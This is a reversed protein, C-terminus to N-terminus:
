QVLAYNIEPYGRPTGLSIFQLKYINGGADKIVYFRDTRVVPDSDPGGGVRWKSGIVDVDGSFTIEAINAATFEDYSLVTTMVEAAEVGGRANIMVLDSYPYPITGIYYLSRGWVIDWKIKAPEASVISNAAFSVYVFSQKSDKPVDISQVTSKNIEAYQITYTEADKQTVKVKYLPTKSEGLNVVYTKGVKIVTKSLDGAWDDVLSAAAPTTNLTLSAAFDASDSANVIADISIDTEIATSATTNNLIVAFENGCYLGLNWSKRAISTQENNSFDVYVSNAAMPGGEGGNLTLQGGTSIISGFTVTLATNTGLVIEDSLSLITLTLTEDGDFLAEDKKTITVSATTQGAQITLSIKGAIAEPNTTYDNGYSLSSETIGITVSVAESSARDINLTISKSSENEDIGIESASFNITNDPLPPDVDKCSTFVVGLMALSLFLLKKM